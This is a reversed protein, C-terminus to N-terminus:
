MYQPPPSNLHRRKLIAEMDDEHDSSRRELGPTDLDLDPDRVTSAYMKRNAMELLAVADPHADMASKKPRRGRGNTLAEGDDDDSETPSRRVQWVEVSDIAFHAEKSLQPSTYTSCRPGALSSGTEFDPNIWLGCYGLQGGMGLGNPLTQTGQNLYQYHDNIRSSPYTRLEPQITFLFNASNGYFDPCMSWDESAFGGFIYNSGKERIVILTAGSRM